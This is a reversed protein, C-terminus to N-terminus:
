NQIGEVCVSTYMCCIAQKFAEIIQIYSYCASYVRTPTAIYELICIQKLFIFNLTILFLKKGIKLM